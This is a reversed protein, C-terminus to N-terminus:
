VVVRQIHVHKIGDRECRELEEATGHTFVETEGDVISRFVDGTGSGIGAKSELESVRRKISM